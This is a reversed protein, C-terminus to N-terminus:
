LKNHTGDCLPARTTKKCACFYLKRSREAVYEVPVFDTPAHSGDCYPQNQSRGCACWWYSKGEEVEVMIPTKQAVVAESM